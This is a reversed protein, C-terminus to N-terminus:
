LQNVKEFFQKAYEEKTMIGTRVINMAIGKYEEPIQDFSHKSSTTKTGTGGEVTSTTKIKPTNDIKKNGKLRRNIYQVMDETNAKDGNASLYDRAAADADARFFSDTQYEPNEQIWQAIHPDMEPAKQQPQPKNSQLEELQDSLEVIRETDGEKAAEARQSKLEAIARKYETDRIKFSDEALQKIAKQLESNSRRVQKIQDLFEGRELYDEASRWKKGENREDAEFEEKSVWGQERAKIEQPSVEGTITQGENEEAM